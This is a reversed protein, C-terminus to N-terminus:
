LVDGFIFDAVERLQNLNVKAYISTSKISTHGLHESIENISCNKSLLHTACAHRLAHPCQKSSEIKLGKMRSNVVYYLSGKPVPGFPPRLTLFLEKYSTPPRVFKLYKIIANGVETTLPYTQIKKTKARIVTFQDNEWDIDQLRLNKVESSRLGYISFLMIIARDRINIPTNKNTHSLIKKVDGWSPGLPISEDRYIRPSEIIDSISNRCWKQDKAFRFFERLDTAFKALTYRSYGRKFLLNLFRDADNIKIFYLSKKKSFYFYWSLFKELCWCRHKITNFSLGKEDHMYSKYKSIYKSYVTTKQKPKGLKGILNLWESVERVFQKRLKQRRSRNKCSLKLWKNSAAIVENMSIQRQRSVKSEFNTAYWLLYRAIYYLTGKGYGAEKKLYLYEKRQQYFPANKHAMRLKEKKFIQEFMVLGKPMNM